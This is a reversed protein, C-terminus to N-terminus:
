KVREIWDNLNYYTTVRSILGDKLEFLTAAPIVYHQGRAPPLKGDTKLYTGDVIFKAAYNNEGDSMIVINKLEERYHENMYNLFSKFTEKGSKESGENVDHKFESHLCALMGEVDHQNFSQYYKEILAKHM